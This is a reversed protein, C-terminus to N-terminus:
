AAIVALKQNPAVGFWIPNQNAPIRLNSTTATPDDGFKICCATDTSVLIARTSANFTASQLSGAGVAVVQDTIAPEPPIQPATTGIASNASKFESIYLTAM